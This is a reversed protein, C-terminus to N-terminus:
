FIQKVFHYLANKWVFYDHGGEAIYYESKIGNGDLAEQYATDFLSFMEEETGRYIFIFTKDKYAEPLTMEEATLKGQFLFDPAGRWAADDPPQIPVLGGTPSFGGIYGFTEPMKIGIFLAERGGISGGAIACQERQNSVSYREKIFPMLDDRLDNIFNDCATIYEEINEPTIWEASNIDSAQINPMVVIMPKAEGLAILNSIIENAAGYECWQTHPTRTGEGAHLLYLVPYVVEPDYDPPTYVCCKRKRGTTKSDYELTELKGYAVSNNKEDFGEPPSNLTNKYIKEGEISENVEPYTYPIDFDIYM